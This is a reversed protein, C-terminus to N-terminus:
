NAEAKEVHDIVVIEVPGKTAELKLGIQEQVATFLSPGDTPAPCPNDPTWTLQFDYTGSLGTQDVVPRGLQRSLFFTLNAMTANMGTVRGCEGRTGSNSGAVPEAATLKPGNKGVALAFVPLEKTERHAKLQFREALLTQLKKRLDPISVAPDGSASKAVIDYVDANIWGPGGSIQYDRVDYAMEVIGRLTGNTVQVGGGHTFLFSSGRGEAVQSPKISAADFAPQGFVPLAALILLAM